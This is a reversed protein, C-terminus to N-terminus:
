VGICLADVKLHSFLLGAQTEPPIQTRPVGRVSLCVSLCVIQYSFSVCRAAAFHTGALHSIDRNPGLPTGEQPCM